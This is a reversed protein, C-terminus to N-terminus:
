AFLKNKQLQPSTISKVFAVWSPYIGDILYYTRDYEHGNVVNSVKTLSMMLFLHDISYMLIMLRVDKHLNNTLDTENPKRLYKNNFCSIVGDIFHTLAERTTSPGMRLYEDVVDASARYALVRM